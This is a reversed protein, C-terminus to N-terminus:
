YSKYATFLVSGRKQCQFSILGLLTSIFVQNTNFRRFSGMITATQDHMATTSKWIAKGAFEESLVKAM